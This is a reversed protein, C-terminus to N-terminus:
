ERSVQQTVDSPKNMARRQLVRAPKILGDPTGSSAVKVPPMNRSVVGDNQLLRLYASGM